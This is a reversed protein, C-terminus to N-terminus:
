IFRKRKIPNGGVLDNSLDVDAAILRRFQSLNTQIVAFSDDINHVEKQCRAVNTNVTDILRKKDDNEPLLKAAELADIKVKELEKYLNTLHKSNLLRIKLTCKDGITSIESNANKISKEFTELINKMDGEYAKIDTMISTIHELKTENQSVSQKLNATNEKLTSANIKIADDHTKLQNKLENHINLLNKMDADVQKFHDNFQDLMDSIQKGLNTNVREIHNFNEEKLQSIDSHTKDNIKGVASEIQKLYQESSYLMKDDLIKLAAIVSKKDEVRLADVYRKNAADTNHTPDKINCIKLNGADINDDPTYNLIVGGGGGREFTFRNRYTHSYRSLSSRGFKNVSM